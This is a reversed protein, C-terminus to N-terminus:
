NKAYDIKGNIVNFFTYSKSMNKLISKLRDKETDTIFIQSFNESDIIKLLAAVRNKDLKDFIDDLLLLPLTKKKQFIFDYQALKM